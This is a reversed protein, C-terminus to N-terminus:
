VFVLSRPAEPIYAITGAPSVAFQADGNGSISVGAAITVPNGIARPARLALRGAPRTGAQLASVLYGSTYQASAIATEVLTTRRGTKLDMLACPGAATGASGLIVIGSRGDDVVQEIFTGRDLDTLVPELSAGDPRLRE